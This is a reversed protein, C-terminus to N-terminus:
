ERVRAPGAQTTVSTPGRVAVFHRHPSGLGSKYVLGFACATLSQWSARQSFKTM